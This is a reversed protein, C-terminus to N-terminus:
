SALALIYHQLADDISFAERKSRTDIEVLDAILQKLRALTLQKAIGLSKKVTYPSIKAEDAIADPSRQGATKVLALIHLQWSLMAVIQQPEVKLARQEAYLALARQTNGAFAAELLEFITSQPTAETLLAITQRTIHPAYLLLKELESALLQQNVGVRTVLYSADSQTLEGGKAKAEAALWRALSGQDLETFEQYDTSKKLFKYYSSRKDLKSEVILVETTDPLNSLLSEARETFQKNAAAGRLLVLKKNSLFPLSTLAESIRELSAEEGDVRELGMDGEEALFANIKSRQVRGLAFTNNGTLTTIMSKNYQFRGNNVQRLREICLLIIEM